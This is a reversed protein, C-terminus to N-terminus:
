QPSPKGAKPYFRLKVLYYIGALIASLYISANPRRLVGATAYAHALFTICAIGWGGLQFTFFRRFDKLLARFILVLFCALFALLLSLGAGGCLFFIGHFDNEVDYIYGEYTLDALELGFIASATPSDELLLRCYNIRLQRVDALDSAQDSYGYLAAVRPLGFKHVLGGMYAEYASQLRALEYDEGTLSRAAAEKEDAAVMADIDAQKLQANAQVQVQNRYMPSFTFCGLFLCTCILLIGMNRKQKRDVLLLTILLGIGTAALTLFALRTGFFFLISFGGVVFLCVTAPRHFWREMAWVLSVPVLMSLIASQANAFYFWGLVGLSKNPYTYSNTGTVLSLVEVAAIIGLCCVMGKRLADYVRRDRNLFTIFCITSLPMQYIRLLNAWDGVPDSYGTLLCAWTHGATLAFLVALATWYIWRRQSLLLGALLLLALMCFRISLTPWNPLGLADLWYSLVDLLPQVICLLFVLRPLHSTLFQHHTQNM